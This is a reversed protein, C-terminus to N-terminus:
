NPLGFNLKKSLEEVRAELEKIRPTNDVYDLPEGCKPCRFKLEAAEDFVVRTCKNKCEYFHNEKEYGLLEQLQKLENLMRESLVADIKEPHIKWYYTYWGTKSRHRRYSVIGAEYLAYLHKRVINPKLKIKETLEVDSVEKETIRNVVPLGEEGVISTIFKYYEPNKLFAAKRVRKRTAKKNSKKKIKTPKRSIKKVRKASTKKVSKSKVPKVKKRIKKRASKVKKISKKKVAVKKVHKPKKQIKPKRKVKSKKISKVSKKSSSKKAPAKKNKGVLLSLKNRLSKTKKVM